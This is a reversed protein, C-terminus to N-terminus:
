ENYGLIKWTERWMTRNLSEIEQHHSRLHDRVDQNNEHLLLNEIKQNLLDFNENTKAIIPTLNFDKYLLEYKHSWSTAIVPINQSLASAVGHFRSSIVLRSNGIIGKVEKANLKDVIEVKDQLINNIENCVKRDKPGEHNLIFVPVKDNQLKSIIESFLSIYTTRDTTTQTFMKRNPIICVSDKLHEYKGPVLGHTQFTFDPYLLLKPKSLNEKLLYDKSIEDRAILIDVYENIIKLSRKSSHSNFPGFAQPLFIIQSGNNKLSKYYKEMLDLYKDTYHWQDGFRFGGADFVVDIKKIPYLDTFFHYPIHLRNIIERKYQGRIIKQRFPLKLNLSTKIFKLDTNFSNLIVEAKPHTREIEELIAYLMLEAGKNETGTGDIQIRM